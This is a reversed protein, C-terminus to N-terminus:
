DGREALYRAVAERVVASPTTDDEAAVREVEPWLPGFRIPRAPNDPRPKNPM